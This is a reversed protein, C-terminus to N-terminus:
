ESDDDSVSESEVTYISKLYEDTPEPIEFGLNYDFEPIEGDKKMLANWVTLEWKDLLERKEEYAANIQAELRKGADYYTITTCDVDLYLSIDIKQMKRCKDYSDGKYDISNPTDKIAAKIIAIVAEAKEAARESDLHHTYKKSLSKLAANKSNRLQRDYESKLNDIYRKSVVMNSWGKQM